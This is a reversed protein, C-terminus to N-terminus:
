SDGSRSLFQPRAAGPQDSPAWIHTYRSSRVTQHGLAIATRRLQCFIEQMSPDCAYSKQNAIDVIQAMIQDPFLRTSWHHPDVQEDMTAALEAGQVQPCDFHARIYQQVKSILTLEVTISWAAFGEQLEWNYSATDWILGQASFVGDEHLWSGM